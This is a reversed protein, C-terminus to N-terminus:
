FDGFEEVSLEERPDENRMAAIRLVRPVLAKMDDLKNDNFAYRVAYYLDIVQQNNRWREPLRDLVANLYSNLTIITTNDRMADLYRDYRIYLEHSRSVEENTIAGPNASRSKIVELWAKDDANLPLWDSPIKLVSLFDDVQRKRDAARREREGREREEAWREYTAWNDCLPGWSDDRTAADDRMFHKRLLFERCTRVFTEPYGEALKVLQANRTGKPLYPRPERLQSERKMQEVLEVARKRPANTSTYVGTRAAFEPKQWKIVEQTEVVEGAPKIYCSSNQHVMLFRPQVAYGILQMFRERWGVPRTDPIRVKGVNHKSCLPIVNEVDDGFGDAHPNIHGQELPSTVQCGTSCCHNGCAAVMAQWFWEGRPRRHKKPKKEEDSM